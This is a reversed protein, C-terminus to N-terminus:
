AGASPLLCNDLLRTTGLRAAAILLGDAGPRWPGFTDPDVCALYDYDLTADRATAVLRGEDREGRAWAERARFLGAALRPARGRDAASLYSNRSSLALGNAERVTEVPVLALPLDLDKVMRTLVALQQADKRGLYAFDPCVIHLLKLVVTCVGAFHGPRIAGEYGDALAGVTVRTSFGEPYLAPAGPAFLLDVRHPALRRADAELDRPYRAYDESPGFQLPNVFISGVLTACEARARRFLDEHGAHLAGMTPVFGVPRPAGALAVRTEAISHSIRM